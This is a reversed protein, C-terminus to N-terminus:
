DWWWAAVDAPPEGVNVRDSLQEDTKVGDVLADRVNYSIGGSVGVIRHRVTSSKKRVKLVRENMVTDVQQAARDVPVVYTLNGSKEPGFFTLDWDVRDALRQQKILNAILAMDFVNKLERYIPYQNAMASFHRTFDRAFSKTPGHSKGTHIRNGEEDLLETESRVQVGSGTFSYLLGLRDMWVDEYNLTFWWRAVDLAPINGEPGVAIRDLYSPVEPISPELGMGVMKMRYDAEVLIRAAHTQDDIGFVEVDQKGLKHQLETSWSEGRLETTALFRKTEALNQQRPTIACGFKGDAEWANRLCVVLDDLQLVPRGSEVNVSRGTEDKKWNGAPGAIVLEGTQPDVLLYKVETLGALNHMASTLPRGQAALIQAARELRTLSVKRLDASWRPQRNGSDSFARRRFKRSSERNDIKLQHLTGAADVFVGSPYAQITGLGTGTDLWSDPQITNQILDILPAFDAETIGGGRGANHGQGAMSALLESRQRDDLVRGASDFASTRAGAKLQRRTIEAFQLDAQGAPLREAIALAQPFEGADLHNRILQGPDTQQGPLSKATVPLFVLLIAFAASRWHGKRHIIM